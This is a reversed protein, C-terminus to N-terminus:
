VLVYLNYLKSFKSCIFWSRRSNNVWSDRGLMSCCNSWYQFLLIFSNLIIDKM